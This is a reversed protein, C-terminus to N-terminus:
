LSNYIFREQQTKMEKLIICVGVEFLQSLCFGKYNTYESPKDYLNSIQLFIKYRHKVYCDNFNIFNVSGKMLRLEETLESM